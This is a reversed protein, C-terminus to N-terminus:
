ERAKREGKVSADLLFPQSQLGWATACVWSSAHTTHGGTDKSAGHKATGKAHALGGHRWTSVSLEKLAWKSPSAPSLCVARPELTVEEGEPSETVGVPRRSQVREWGSPRTGTKFANGAGEKVSFRTWVTVRSGASGREREGRRGCGGGM